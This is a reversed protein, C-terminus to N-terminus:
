KSRVDWRVRDHSEIISVHFIRFMPAAFRKCLTTKWAFLLDNSLSKGSPDLEAEGIDALVISSNLVVLLTRQVSVYRISPGGM